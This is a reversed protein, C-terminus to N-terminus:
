NAIASLMSMGEERATAYRGYNGGSDCCCWYGSGPYQCDSSDWFYVSYTYRGNPRKGAVMVSKGCDSYERAMENFGELESPFEFPHIEKDTM